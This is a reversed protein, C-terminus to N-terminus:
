EDTRRLPTTSGTVSIGSPRRSTKATTPKAQRRVRSALHVQDRHARRLDRIHRIVEICEIVRRVRTGTAPADFEVAGPGRTYHPPHNVMDTQTM